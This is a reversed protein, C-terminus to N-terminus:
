RGFRVALGNSATAGLGNAAWDVCGAQLFLPLGVPVTTPIPISTSFKGALPKSSNSACRMIVRISFYRGTKQLRRICASLPPMKLLNRTNRRWLSHM